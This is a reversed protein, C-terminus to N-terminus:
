SVSAQCEAAVGKSALYDPCTKCVSNGRTPVIPFLKRNDDDYGCRYTCSFRDWVGNEHTGGIVSVPLPDPPCCLRATPNQVFGGSCEFAIKNCPKGDLGSANLWSGREPLTWGSRIAYVSCEMCQSAQVEGHAVTVFDLEKFSPLCAWVGKRYDWKSNAIKSSEVFTCNKKKKHWMYNESCEYGCTDLHAGNAQGVAHIKTVSSYPLTDPCCGAPDARVSKTFGASCYYADEDCERRKTVGGITLNPPNAYWIGNPPLLTGLRDHYDDCRYCNDLISNHRGYYCVGEEESKYPGCKCEYDCDLLWNHNQKVETCTECTATGMNWFYGPNCARGCPQYSPDPHSNPIDNPCCYRTSNARTYGNNCRWADASCTSPNDIWLAHLPLAVSAFNEQLIGCKVCVGSYDPHGHYNPKCAFDCKMRSLQDDSDVFNAQLPKNECGRCEGNPNSILDVTCNFGVKPAWKCVSLGNVFEANAPPAIGQRSKLEKCSYCLNDSPDTFYGYACEYECTGLIWQVNFLADFVSKSPCVSCTLTSNGTRTAYYGGICRAACSLQAPKWFKGDARIFDDERLDTIGFTSWARQTLVVPGDAAETIAQALKDNELQRGNTPQATGHYIWNLGAQGDPWESFEPKNINQSIAYEPCTVCQAGFFGVDCTYSCGYNLSAHDPIDVACATCQDSSGGDSTQDKPCLTCKPLDNAFALQSPRTSGPFCFASAYLLGSVDKYWRSYFPTGIFAYDSSITVSFGFGDTIDKDNAQPNFIEHMRCLPPNDRVLISYALNEGPAGVLITTWGYAEHTDQSISAGFLSNAAANPHKVECFHSLTQVRYIRILAAVSSNGPAGIVLWKTSLSLAAGFDGEGVYEIYNTGIPIPPPLHLVKEWSTHAGYGSAGPEGRAFFVEVMGEKGAEGPTGVAIFKGHLALAKGYNPDASTMNAKEWSLASGFDRDCGSTCVWDYGGVKQEAYHTSVYRVGTSSTAMVATAKQWASAAEGVCIQESGRQWTWPCTTATTPVQPPIVKSWVPSTPKTGRQSAPLDWWARQERRANPDMVLCDLKGPMSFCAMDDSAVARPYSNADNVTIEEMGSAHEYFYGGLDADASVLANNGFGLALVYGSAAQSIGLLRGSSAKLAIDPSITRVGTQSLPFEHQAARLRSSTEVPHVSAGGERSHQIHSITDQLTVAPLSSLSVMAHAKKRTTSAQAGHVKQGANDPSLRASSWRRRGSKFPSDQTMLSPVPATAESDLLPDAAVDLM